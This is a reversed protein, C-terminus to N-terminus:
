QRQRREHLALEHIEIIKSLLEITTDLRINGANTQKELIKGLTDLFRDDDFGYVFADDLDVQSLEEIERMLLRFVRVALESTPQVKM